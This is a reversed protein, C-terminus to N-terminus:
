IGSNKGSNRAHLSMAKRLRAIDNWDYMAAHVKRPGKRQQDGRNEFRGGRHIREFLQSVDTSDKNTATALAESVAARTDDWSKEETPEPIGRIIVTKRLGRNTQDETRERQVKMRVAQLSVTHHLSTVEKKLAHNTKMIGEINTNYLTELNSIDQKNQNTQQIAKSAELTNLAIAKKNATALTHIETIRQDLHNKVGEIQQSQETFRADLREEMGKLIAAFDTPDPPPKETQEGGKKATTGVKSGKSDSNKAAGFM